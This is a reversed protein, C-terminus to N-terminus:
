EFMKMYGLIEQYDDKELLAGETMVAKTSSFSAMKGCNVLKHGRLLAKLFVSWYLDGAGTADKANCQEVPIEFIEGGASIMSGKSGMTLVVIKAGLKHYKKIYEKPELRGFLSRADDLSPKTLDVYKYVESFVQMAEKVNPWVSRRYNPDFSVVRKYKHAEKIVHLITSRTPEEALSFANIHVVKTKKILEMEIDEVLLETDAGRIIEFEPTESNKDKLRGIISKTTRKKGIKVHSDIVGHLKLIKLLFKGDEDDGIKTVILPRGGLEKTHLVINTPSGGLFKKFVKVDKLPKDEQSIYDTLLEGVCLIDIDGKISGAKKIILNENM